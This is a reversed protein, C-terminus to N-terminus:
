APRADRRIQRRGSRGTTRRAAVGAAAKAGAGIAHAINAAMLTALNAGLLLYAARGAFVHTLLVGLVASFVFLAVLLQDGTLGSKKCLFDYALWVLPLSGLAM